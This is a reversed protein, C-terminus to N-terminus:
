IALIAQEVASRAERMAETTKKSHPWNEIIPMLDSIVMEARARKRHELLYPALEEIIKAAALGNVAWQQIPKHKPSRFPVDYVGGGFNDQMFKMLPPSTSALSVRLCGVYQRKDRVITISGEGDFLGAAYLLIENRNLRAEM